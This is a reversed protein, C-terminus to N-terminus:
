VFFLPCEEHHLPLFLYVLLCNNRMFFSSTSVAHGATHTHAPFKAEEIVPRLHHTREYRRDPYGSQDLHSGHIHKRSDPYHQYIPDVSPSYRPDTPSFSHPDTHRHYPDYSPQYRPDHPVPYLAEPQPPARPRSTTPYDQSYHVVQPPEVAEM